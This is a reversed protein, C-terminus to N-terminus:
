KRRMMMEDLEVEWMKHGELQVYKVLLRAPSVTSDAVVRLFVNPEAASHVLAPHPKNLIPAIKAHLPSVVFQHLPYGVQQTTDYKLHRQCHIDGGVLIVGSIDNEGLFDFVAQKEAPYSDWDDAEPGRKSDWSMGTCLIKFPATSARLSKKLWKWQQRGLLTHQDPDFPSPATRSFWRADLWYVEIPGYRFKTYIGEGHEGDSANMRYEVFAQRNYQKFPWNGDEDNDGFDHDDWTGWVSTNRAIKALQPIRLFNRHHYRAFSLDGSDIYPTDGLLVIGNAGDEGMLRFIENPETWACSGLALCVRAPQDHPPATHFYCDEGTVLQKDGYRVEYSYKTGAELGYIYWHICLDRDMDAFQTLERRFESDSSTLVLTYHGEEIPRLWLVASEPSVHGVVPGVVTNVPADNIKAQVVGHVSMALWVFTSLYVQSFRFIQHHKM